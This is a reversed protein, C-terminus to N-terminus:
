ARSPRYASVRTYFPRRGLSAISSNRSAGTIPSSPSARNLAIYWTLSTLREEISDVVVLTVHNLLWLLESRAGGM